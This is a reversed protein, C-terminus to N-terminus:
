RLRAVAGLGGDGAAEYLLLLFSSSSFSSSSSTTGTTPQLLTLEVVVSLSRLVIAISRLCSDFLKRQLDGGQFFAQPSGQFFNSPPFSLCFLLLSINSLIPVPLPAPELHGRSEVSAKRLLTSSFLLIFFYFFPSREFPLDFYCLIIEFCLVIDSLILQM